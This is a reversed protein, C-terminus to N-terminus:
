ILDRKIKIVIEYIFVFQDWKKTKNADDIRRANVDDILKHFNLLIEFWVFKIRQTFILNNERFKQIFQFFTMNNLIILQVLIFIETYQFERLFSTISYIIFHDSIIHIFLFHFSSTLFSSIFYFFFLCDLLVRNIKKWAYSIIFLSIV